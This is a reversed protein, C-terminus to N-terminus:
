QQEEASRRGHQVGGAATGGRHLLRGLGKQALLRWWGQGGGGGDGGNDVSCGRPGYDRSVWRVGGGGTIMVRFSVM